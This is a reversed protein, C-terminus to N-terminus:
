ATKRLGSFLEKVAACLTNWWLGMQGLVHSLAAGASYDRFFILAICWFFALAALIACVAMIWNFLKTLKDM